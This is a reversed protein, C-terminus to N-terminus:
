QSLTKPRAMAQTQTTMGVYTKAYSACSSSPSCVVPSVNLAAAQLSSPSRITKRMMTMGMYKMMLSTFSGTRSLTAFVDSRIELSTARRAARFEKSLEAAARRRRRSGDNRRRSRKNRFALVDSRIERTALDDAAGRAM